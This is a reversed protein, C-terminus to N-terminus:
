TCVRHFTQHGPQANSAEVDYNRGALSSEALGSALGEAAAFAHGTAILVGADAFSVAWQRSTRLIFSTGGDSRREASIRNWAFPVSRGGSIRVHVERNM